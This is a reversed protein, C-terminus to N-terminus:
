KKSIWKSKKMYFRWPKFADEEAYNIGIRTTAVIEDQSLNPADEIWIQDATLDLGNHYQFQLGLAQGLAGPGSTLRIDLTSKGRREMMYSLGELPEIARILIADAQEPANCVVNLMHHIGYCLYVYTHGVAGYMVETRTTRKGNHAHCAKGGVGSYAEVETIVGGCRKNDVNSVLLKGLLERAIQSVDPREYFSRALKLVTLLL